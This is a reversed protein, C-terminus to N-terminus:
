TSYLFYIIKLITMGGKPINLSYEESTKWNLDLNESTVKLYITITVNNDTKCEHGCLLKVNEIFITSMETLVSKVESPVELMNFFINGPNM